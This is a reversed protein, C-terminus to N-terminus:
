GTLLANVKQVVDAMSEKATRKGDYVANLGASIEKDMEDYRAVYPMPKATNAAEQITQKTYGEPLEVFAKL